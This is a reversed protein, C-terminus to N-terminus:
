NDLEETIQGIVLASLYKCNDLQKKIYVVDEAKLEVTEETSMKKGLQFGRSPNEIGMGCLMNAVISGMTAVPTEKTGDETMEQGKLNIIPKNTVFLKM